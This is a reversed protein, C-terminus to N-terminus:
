KVTIKCTAVKGNSTKVTITATGKAKATVKGNKNVTAVKKNSTTWTLTTDTTTAPAITAKLTSTKGKTLSLKSKNLTVSKAKVAKKVTVKCTAKKGNATTVTITATGPSVATVKGNKNVKAVKKNSSKWTVDDDTTDKPSITAKLTTKKGEVLSVKSKNLTVSKAKTETKEEEVVIFLPNVGDLLDYGDDVIMTYLIYTGAKTITQSSGDAYGWYDSPITDYKESFDYDYNDLDFAYYKDARKVTNAKVKNTDFYLTFAIAAEYEADGYPKLTITVPAKAYVVTSDYGTHTYDDDSLYYSYDKVETSIVNTIDVTAPAYRYSTPPSGNTSYTITETTTKQAALAPTPISLVMILTLAYVIIKKM